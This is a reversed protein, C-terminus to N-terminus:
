INNINIKLTGIDNVKGLTKIENLLKAILQLTKSSYIFSKDNTKYIYDYKFKTSIIGSKILNKKNNIPNYRVKM